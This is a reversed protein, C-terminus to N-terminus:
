KLIEKFAADIKDLVALFGENYAHWYQQTRSDLHSNMKDLEEITHLRKPLKARLEKMEALTPITDIAILKPLDEFIGLGEETYLYQMTELWGGHEAVDADDAMMKPDFEVELYAKM